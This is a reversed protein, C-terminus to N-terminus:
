KVTFAKVNKIPNERNSGDGFYVYVPGGDEPKLPKGDISFGLFFQKAQELPFSLQEENTVVVLETADDNPTANSLFPEFRIGFTGTMLRQKEFKKETKITPPSIAGEQIDKQWDKAAKKSYDELEDIEQPPENFFNNLEMKRDDFIWVGPDLTVTYQVKGNILVISDM